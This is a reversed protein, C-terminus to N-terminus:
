FAFRVIHKETIGRFTTITDAMTRWVGMRQALHVREPAIKFLTAVLRQTFSRALRGQPEAADAARGGWCTQAAWAVPIAPHRAPGM